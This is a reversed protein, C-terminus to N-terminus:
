GTNWTTRDVDTKTRWTQSTLHIVYTSYESNTDSSVIEWAYSLDEQAVYRDLSTEEATAVHAPVGIVFISALLGVTLVIRWCTPAWQDFSPTVRTPPLLM